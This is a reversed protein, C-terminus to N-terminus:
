SMWQTCIYFNKWDKVLLLSKLQMELFKNYNEELQKETYKVM